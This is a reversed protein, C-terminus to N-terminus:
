SQDWADVWLPTDDAIAGFRDPHITMTGSWGGPTAYSDGLVPPGHHLPAHGSRLLPLVHAADVAFRNPYGHRSLCTANGQDVLADLWDAGTFDAEWTALVSPDSAAPGAEAGARRVVFFWGLM